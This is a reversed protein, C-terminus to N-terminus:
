RPYTGEVIVEIEFVTDASVEVEVEINSIGVESSENADDSLGILVLAGKVSFYDVAMPDGTQLSIPLLGWSYSWTGNQTVGGYPLGSPTVANGDPQLGGINGAHAGFVLIDAATGDGWTLGLHGLGSLNYGTYSDVYEVNGFATGVVAYMYNTGNPMTDSVTVSLTGSLPIDDGIYYGIIALGDSAGFWAGRATATITPTITTVGDSYSMSVTGLTRPDADSYMFVMYKPASSLSAGPNFANTFTGASATLAVYGTAIERTTMIGPPQGYVVDIDMDTQHDIDVVIFVESIIVDIDVDHIDVEISTPGPLPDGSPPIPPPEEGSGADSLFLYGYIDSDTSSLEVAYVVYVTVSDLQIASAYVSRSGLSDLLTEASWGSGSNTRWMTDGDPPDRYISIFTGDSTYIVFPWGYGDFALAPSGWTAGGDSSVAYYIDKASEQRVFAYLDSGVPIVGIESTATSIQIETPASWDTLSSSILVGSRWTGTSSTAAWYQPLLYNSGVKIVHGSVLTFYAGATTTVSYQTWTSSASMAAATDDCVLIFSDLTTHSSPDYYRGAVVAHDDVVSVADDCRIDLTAHDLITFESAWSISTGSVTGIRGTLKGNTIHTTGYYYVLLVRNSGLSTIGPFAKYGSGSDITIRTGDPAWAM